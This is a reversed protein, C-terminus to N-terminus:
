KVFTVDVYLTYSHVILIVICKHLQQVVNGSLWEGIEDTTHKMTHSVNM